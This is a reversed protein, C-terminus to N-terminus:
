RNYRWRLIICDEGVYDVSRDLAPDGTAMRMADAYAELMDRRTFHITETCGSALSSGAPYEFDYHSTMLKSM